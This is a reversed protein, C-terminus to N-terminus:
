KDCQKRDSLPAEKLAQDCEAEWLGLLANGSYKENDDSDISELEGFLHDNTDYQTIGFYEM